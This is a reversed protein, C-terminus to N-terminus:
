EYQKEMRRTRNKLECVNLLLENCQKDEFKINHGIYASFMGAQNKNVKKLNNFEFNNKNGDLFIICDNDTLKENTSKEYIYRQKQVWKNNIKIFTRGDCNIYETGDKNKIKKNRLPKEYKFKIQKENCYNRLSKKSYNKNFRINIIDLLEDITYKGEVSRLYINMKTNNIPM